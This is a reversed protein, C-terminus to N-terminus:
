CVLEVTQEEEQGSQAEPEGSDTNIRKEIEKESIEELLDAITIGTLFNMWKSQMVSYCKYMPCYHVTGRGCNKDEELCRNISITGETLLIVDYLRIKDAPRGLTYGGRQGRHTEILGNNRLQLGIRNLYKEPIKMAGAIEAIPVVGRHGALYLLTRVAYDTTM